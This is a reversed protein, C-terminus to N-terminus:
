GVSVLTLRMWAYFISVVKYGSTQVAQLTKYTDLDALNTEFAFSERAAIRKFFIKTAEGNAIDQTNLGGAKDRIEKAILDANIYGLGKPVIFDYGTTKGVGNPGALVHLEPQSNL